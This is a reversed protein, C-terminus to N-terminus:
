WNKNGPKNYQDKKIATSVLECSRNGIIGICYEDRFEQKTYTKGSVVINNVDKIEPIQKECASLFAALILLGVIQKKM